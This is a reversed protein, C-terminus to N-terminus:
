LVFLRPISNLMDNRSGRVGETLANITMTALRYAMAACHVDMAAFGSIEPMPTRRGDILIMELMM